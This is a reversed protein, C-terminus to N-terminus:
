IGASTGSSNTSSKKCFKYPACSSRMSFGKVPGKLCKEQSFRRPFSFEKGDKRVCKNKKDINKQCCDM